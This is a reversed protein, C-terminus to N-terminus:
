YKFHEESGLCIMLTVPGHDSITIPEIYSDNVRYLDKKSISFVDIRSYSICRFCLHLNEKEPTILVGFM